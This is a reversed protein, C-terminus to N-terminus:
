ALAAPSALTEPRAVRTARGRRPAAHDEPPLPPSSARAIAIRLPLTASTVPAPAPM